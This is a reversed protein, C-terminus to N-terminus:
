ESKIRKIKELITLWNSIMETLRSLKEPANEEKLAINAEWIKKILNQELLSLAQNVRLKEEEKLGKVIAVPKNCKACFVEGKFEFLPTSCVPCSESLMIAGSKLLDAMRKIENLKNKVM